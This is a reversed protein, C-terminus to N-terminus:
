LKLKSLITDYEDDSKTIWRTARRQVAELKDINGKTHPKWTEWSCVLLSRVRSSYLTKMTDIDNLDRCTRKVLVLVGNAKNATTKDVHLNWSLDGATFM